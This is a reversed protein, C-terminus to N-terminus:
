KESRKALHESIAIDVDAYAEPPLDIVGDSNCHIHYFDNDPGTQLIFCPNENKSFASERIMGMSLAWMIREYNKFREIEVELEAIRAGELKQIPHQVDGAKAKNIIHKVYLILAAFREHKKKNLRLTKKDDVLDCFWRQVTELVDLMDAVAGADLAETSIQECANWCAVIRACRREAAINVPAHKGQRSDGLCNAVAGTYANQSLGPKSKDSNVLRVMKGVQEVRSDDDYLMSHTPM